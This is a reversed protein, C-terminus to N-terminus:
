PSAARRARELTRAVDGNDPRARAILELHPLAEALRNIRLLTRALQYRADLNEPARELTQAFQVIAADYRGAGALARALNLRATTFEPDIAVAREFLDIAARRDDLRIEVIGLHNAADAHDPSRELASRLEEAAREHEDLNMVRTGVLYHLEARYDGAEQPFPGPLWALLLMALGGVIALLAQRRRQRLAAPLATIGAAAAIALLPILPARYRPSVFVLLVAASYCTLMAILPFGLRRGSLILGMAALPIMLGLPFGFGGLKWTTLRLVPSWERFVYVDLNRPLERSSFFALSKSGLGVAFPGPHGAIWRWAQERFYAAAERKDEIGARKPLSTLRQWDRGPRIAVTQEREANNGIFLNLGGSAPLISFTGRLAHQGWAAPLMLAMLGLTCLLAGRLRREPRGIVVWGCLLLAVPIFTPRTLCALAALLGLLLCVSPQRAGRALPALWVMMLALLTAWSTALLQGEFFMLPGCVAVAVGAIWGAVPGLRQHAVRWSLLATIVGLLAQVGLTPLPLSGFLRYLTTLFLPYFLPQWFLRDDAPGGAALDRALADYVASDV